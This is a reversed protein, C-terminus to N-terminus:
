LPIPEVPTFPLGLAEGFEKTRMNMRERIKEGERINSLVAELLKADDQFDKSAVSGAVFSMQQQNQRTPSM